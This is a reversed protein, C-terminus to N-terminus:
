HGDFIKQINDDSLVNYSKKYTRNTHSAGGFQGNQEREEVIYNKRSDIFCIEGKHKKNKNLVLICTSIDTAEFM